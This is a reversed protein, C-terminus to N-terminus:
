QTCEGSGQCIPCRATGEGYTGNVRSDTSTITGVPPGITATASTITILDDFFYRGNGTGGTGITEDIATPIYTFPGYSACTPTCTTVNNTTTCTRANLTIGTAVVSKGTGNTIALSDPYDTLAIGTVQSQGTNCVSGGYTVEVEVTTGNSAQQLTTSCSKSITLM